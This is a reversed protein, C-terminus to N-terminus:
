LYRALHDFLPGAMKPYGTASPHVWDAAGPTSETFDSPGPILGSLRFQDVLEIHKGATRRSAVEIALQANYAGTRGAGAYVPIVNQVLVLANPLATIVADVVTTACSTAAAGSDADNMGLEISVIHPTYTACRAAIIAAIGAITIGAYGEHGTGSGTPGAQSGVLDVRSNARLCRELLPWRYGGRSDQVNNGYKGNTISTGVPMLKVTGTAPVPTWPRPTSVRSAVVARM